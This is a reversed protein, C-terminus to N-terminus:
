LSDWGHQQIRQWTIAAAKRGQRRLDEIRDRRYRIIDLPTLWNELSILAGQLMGPLGSM